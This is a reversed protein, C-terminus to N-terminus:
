AFRSNGIPFALHQVWLKRPRTKRYDGREISLYREMKLNVSMKTGIEGREKEDLLM